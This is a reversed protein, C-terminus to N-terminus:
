CGRKFELRAQTFDQMLGILNDMAHLQKSSLLGLEHTIETFICCMAEEEPNHLLTILCQETGPKNRSM